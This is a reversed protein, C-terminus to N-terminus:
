ARPRSRSRWACRPRGSACSGPSRRRGSWSRRSGRGRRAPDLLVLHAISSTTSPRISGFASPLSRGRLRPPSRRRRPLRSRPLRPRPRPRRRRASRRAHEFSFSSASSVEVRDALSNSLIVLDSSFSPECTSWAVELRLSCIESSSILMRKVACAPRARQAVAHAAQDVFHAADLASGRCRRDVLRLMGRVCKM